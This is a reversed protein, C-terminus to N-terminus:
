ILGFLGIALKALKTRSQPDMLKPMSLKIKQLKSPFMRALKQENPTLKDSVDNQPM